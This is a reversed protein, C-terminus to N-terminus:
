SEKLDDITGKDPSVDDLLLASLSQNASEM